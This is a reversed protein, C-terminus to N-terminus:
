VEYLEGNPRMRYGMAGLAETAVVYLSRNPGVHWYGSILTPEGPEAKGFALWDKCKEGFDWSQFEVGLLMAYSVALDTLQRRSLVAGASKKSDTMVSTVKKQTERQEGGTLAPSYHPPTLHQEQTATLNLSRVMPSRGTARETMHHTINALSSRGGIPAIVMLIRHHCPDAGWKGVAWAM